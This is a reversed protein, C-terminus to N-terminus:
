EYHKKIIEGISQVLGHDGGEENDKKGWGIEGCCLYAFFRDGITVRFYVPTGLKDTDGSPTITGEYHAGELDLHFAFAAKENM